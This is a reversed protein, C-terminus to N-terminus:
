GSVPCRKRVWITFPLLASGLLMLSSPEPIPGTPQETPINLSSHKVLRIDFFCDDEIVFGALGIENSGNFASLVTGYSAPSSESEFADGTGYAAPTFTGSRRQTSYPLSSSGTHNFTLGFNEITTSGDADSMFIQHGARGVFQGNIVQPNSYSLQGLPIRARSSIGVLESADQTSSDPNGSAGCITLGFLTFCDPIDVDFIDFLSFAKANSPMILLVVAVTIIAIASTPKQM